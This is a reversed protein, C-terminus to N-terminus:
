FTANVGFTWTVPIPLNDNEPDNGTWPTMTFVNNGSMYVRVREIFGAQNLVNTPLSYGLTVNKLRMFGNREAFRDSFRNNGGPDGRVARPLSNLKDDPDWTNPNSPTWRNLTATWQNIGTSSMSTGKARQGNYKYVDGIGQFFISFDFGKWNAGASFGYFHGPITNGIFTRDNLDVVSDPNPSYFDYGEDPNPPGHVDQFFFDGASVQASDAQSDRYTSWWNLVEEQSQYIGGTKFGWLYNMPFGKEIRGGQGGFPQDNWVELVENHITTLNGSFNYQFDGINGNYGLQFEFGNNQVTAVNIIPNNENGVSAPFSVQQLIDETIRDYYEVTATLRNNFFIGDFGFNTTTATEWSLDRTPFDPLRVGFDMDGIPDGMGSGFAYHPATNVTSLFAYARTEQNGLQGWGARIKLDNIWTIGSMFNESSIRWALAVSPFTGWRYEPAFKSSGDRRVTLDVYYKSAYNYSARGMYGQLATENRFQGANVYEVPGGVSRFRKEENNIQQTSGSIFNFGYQQDMANLTINISHDGFQRNYDVTFEKVVNNNRAHREGYSGLSFGDGDAYPNGPTINFMENDRSGWNKRINYYWDLSLSGKLTLGEIPEIQLYANGINRIISYTTENIRKDGRAYHNMETETGYKMTYDVLYPAADPNSGGFLPHAPNPTTVTDSVTAYGYKEEVPSNIRYYDDELFIPQWPPASVAASLSYPAGGHLLDLADVYALRYTLGAEMYDAIKSTVNTALSYREQWNGRFPADTYSYGTSVYYTTNENGGYVRASADVTGANKKIFPTQWDIAPRNGLYRQYQALTDSTMAPDFWPPLPENPNADYVEQYLQAYDSVGLLDYTNPINQVGYSYALDVKPRGEKGKKTTILIVGNSARVGYIAAASADKLVSISEIDDPNILSLINIQGRIDRVVAAESEAGSGYETIPVGDIVYLPDAIGFTSVGRIRVTPRDSPLGSPTSVLVGAMRGQMAMEPAMSVSKEIDESEMVSIAGTLDKKERTGYGIVVVESLETVESEMVVDITSRAGVEITQSRYGIASFLLTAGEPVNLRYNGDMDTITGTTTGQIIINVGPIPEGDEASTVKGSVTRDQAALQGFVFLGLVFLLLRPMRLHNYFNGM